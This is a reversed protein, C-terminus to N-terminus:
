FRVPSLGKRTKWRIVSHGNEPAPYCHVVGESDLVRHTAGGKRIFLIKPNEIRIKLGGSTEVERWEEESIDFQKLDTM